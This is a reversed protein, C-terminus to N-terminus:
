YLWNAPDTYNGDKRVEFHLHNGTSTGTSGIFGIVDGAKVTQGVTVNNKSNHAYLTVVGSGHDVMVYLGYGGNDVNVTKTIIGDAVSIIPSGYPAPFDVGTHFTNKIQTVPHTRPGYPSSITTNNPVPFPLKQGELDFSLNLSASDGEITLFQMAKTVYNPNGYSSWGLKKAQQTAFQNSLEQSWKGGNSAVFSIFGNGFNYAQILTQIDVGSSIMQEIGKAFHKIGVEISKNPDTISNPPLGISESSQMVDPLTGGSELHIIVLILDKYKELGYKTLEEVVKDEHQLVDPSLSGVLLELSQEEESGTITTMGAIMIIPISIILPVVIAVLLGGGAVVFKSTAIKAMVAQVAKLAQNKIQNLSKSAMSKGRSLVKSNGSKQAMITSKANLAARKRIVKRQAKKIKFIKKDAKMIKKETKQLNFAKKDFGVKKSVFSNTEFRIQKALPSIASNAFKLGEMDSDEIEKNYSEKLSRGASSIAKNPSLIVKQALNREGVSNSTLPSNFSIKRQKQIKLREKEAESQIKKRTVDKQQANIPEEKKQLRFKRGSDFSVKKVAYRKRNSTSSVKKQKINERDSDFSISPIKVRNLLNEPQRSIKIKRSKGNKIVSKTTIDLHNLSTNLNPNKQIYSTRKLILDNRKNDLKEIKFNSPRSESNLEHIANINRRHVRIKRQQHLDTFSGRVVAYAKDTIKRQAHNKFYDVKSKNLDDTSNM